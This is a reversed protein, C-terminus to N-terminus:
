VRISRGYGSVAVPRAARSAPARTIVPSSTRTAWPAAANSSHVPTAAGTSTMRAATPKVSHAYAQRLEAILPPPPKAPAPAPILTPKVSSLLSRLRRSQRRRLPVIVELEDGGALRVPRGQDRDDAAERGPEHEVLSRDVGVEAPALLPVPAARPLLDLRVLDDDVGPEPVAPREARREREHDLVAVM